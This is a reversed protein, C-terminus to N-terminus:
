YSAESGGPPPPAPPPPPLSAPAVDAGLAALDQFSLAPGPCPDCTSTDWADETIFAGPHVLLSFLETDYHFRLPSLMTKTGDRKVKTIDVKAVFFKMGAQVYPKLVPEAGEPINHKNERLWADLGMSDEASLIVVEYEGVAFQAEIEMQLVVPVPVVMAFSEPPGQYNNAMSLVTRTGLRMMVVQTANNFLKAGAGGV